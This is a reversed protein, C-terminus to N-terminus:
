LHLNGETRKSTSRGATQRAEVVIDERHEPSLEPHNAVLTLDDILLMVISDRILSVQSVTLSMLLRV